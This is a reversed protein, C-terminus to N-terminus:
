RAYFIHLICFIIIAYLDAYSIDISDDTDSQFPNSTCKLNIQKLFIKTESPMQFLSKNKCAFDRERENEKERKTVLNDTDRYLFM